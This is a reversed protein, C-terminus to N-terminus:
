ELLNYVAKLIMMVDFAAEGGASAAEGSASVVVGSTSVVEGSTSM